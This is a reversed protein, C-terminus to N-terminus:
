HNNRKYEIMGQQCLPPEVQVRDDDVPTISNKKLESMMKQRLPQTQQVRIMM